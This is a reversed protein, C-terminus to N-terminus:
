LDSLFSVTFRSFSILWRIASHPATKDPPTKWPAGDQAGPWVLAGLWDFLHGILFIM